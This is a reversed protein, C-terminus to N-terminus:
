KRHKRSKTNKKQAKKHSKKSAKKHSKKSAKKHSKKHAKKHPRRKSYKKNSYYGGTKLNPPNTQSRTGKYPGQAGREWINSEANNDEVVESGTLTMDTPAPAPPGKDGINYTTDISPPPPGPIFKRPSKKKPNPIMPRGNKGIPTTSEPSTNKGSTNLPTSRSANDPTVIAPQVATSKNVVSKTAPSLTSNNGVAEDDTLKKTAFTELTKVAEELRNIMPDTVDKTKSIKGLIKNLSEVKKKIEDQTGKDHLQKSNEQITVLNTQITGLREPIGQLRDKLIDLDSAREFLEGVKKDFEAWM